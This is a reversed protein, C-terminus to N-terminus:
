NNREDFYVRRDQKDAHAMPNDLYERVAPEELLRTELARDFQPRYTGNEIWVIRMLKWGEVPDVRGDKLFLDLLELSPHTGVTRGLIAGDPVVRPDALLAKVHEVQHNDTAIFLAQQNGLAPNARGDALLLLLIDANVNETIAEIIHANTGKVINTSPDVRPDALLLAVVADHGRAIAYHLVRHTPQVRGDALLFRVVTVRNNLAAAELPNLM